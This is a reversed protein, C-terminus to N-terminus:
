CLHVDHVERYSLPKEERRSRATLPSLGKSPLLPFFFVICQTTHDRGGSGEYKVEGNRRYTTVERPQRSLETNGQIVEWGLWYSHEPSAELEIMAAASPWAVYM